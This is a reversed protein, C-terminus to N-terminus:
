KATFYRYLAQLVSPLVISNTVSLDIKGWPWGNKQGGPQKRRYLLVRGNVTSAGFYDPWSITRSGFAGQKVLGAQSATVPGVILQGGAAVQQCLRQVLGPAIVNAGYDVLNRNLQEMNAHGSSSKRSTGGARPQLDIRSNGPGTVRFLLQTSRGTTVGNVRTTRRTLKSAWGTVANVPIAVDGYRIVASDAHFSGYDIVAGAPPAARPPPPTVPAAPPPTVPPRPPVVPRPATVPERYAPPAAPPPSVSPGATWWPQPQTM